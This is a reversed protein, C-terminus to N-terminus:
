RGGAPDLDSPNGPNGDLPQAQEPGAAPEHRNLLDQLTPSPRFSIARHADIVLGGGTSPNIGQRPAREVVQFTGFNTVMVKEGRALREKIIEFIADVMGVAEAISINPDVEHIARAIDRKTLSM